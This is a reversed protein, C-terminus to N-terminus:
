HTTRNEKAYLWDPGKGFRRLLYDQVGQCAARYYLYRERREHTAFFLLQLKRLMKLKYLKFIEPLFVFLSIKMKERLSCNREVWFLRNRWWFYTAYTKSQISASIKHWVKAQPCTFVKFGIKKARFCFDSEEWYLFFRPELLGIREFVERKAMLACGCVYDVEKEEEWSCHDDVIRHGILDFQAKSRNWMGGFHDFQDPFDFRYIKAGLIGANPHKQFSTVFAQLCHPDVITDNNLLLIYDAATKLAYLIGINNGGSFGLNEGTEFLTVHPFHSRIAAASDDRSGNDVVILEFFPYSVKEFSKLCELTIHKGNYNVIVVAVKM